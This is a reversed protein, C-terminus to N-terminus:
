DRHITRSVRRRAAFIVGALGAGMLLITGPEPVVRPRSTIYEQSDNVGNTACVNGAYGDCPDDSLVYWDKQLTFPGTPASLLTFGSQAPGPSGLLTWLTGQVNVASYLPNASFEYQEALWAAQRYLAASGARTKSFDGNGVVGGVNSTFATSFYTDQSTNAYHNIDVCWIVANGIMAPGPVGMQANYGTLNALYPGVQFGAVVGNSSLDGVFQAFGSVPAQASATAPTAAATFAALMAVRARNLM